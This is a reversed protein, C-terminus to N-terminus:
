VFLFNKIRATLSYVSMRSTGWRRTTKVKGPPMGAKIDVAQDPGLRLGLGLPESLVHDPWNERLIPQRKKLGLAFDTIALTMRKM